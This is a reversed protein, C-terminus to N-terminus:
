INSDAQSRDLAQEEPDGGKGRNVLGPNDVELYGNCAMHAYIGPKIGYRRCSDVFGKVIDGKGDKYPSQKMGYPYLDSQWCMFGSGHKATFVAYRAGMARAAEMWQDTNLERPNFVSAEPRTAYQRHDWGPQFVNIDYHIFLGLELDQRALQQPTPKPLASTDGNSSMGQGPVNDECTTTM